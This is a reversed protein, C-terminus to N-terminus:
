IVSYLLIIALIKQLIAIDVQLLYSLFLRFFVALFLWIFTMRHLSPFLIDSDPIQPPNIVFSKIRNFIVKQWNHWGSLWSSYIYSTYDM